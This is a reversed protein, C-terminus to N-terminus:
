RREPDDGGVPIILRIEFLFKQLSLRPNNKAATFCFDAEADTRLRIKEADLAM